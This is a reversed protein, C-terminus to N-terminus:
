PHSYWNRNEDARGGGNIAGSLEAASRVDANLDDVLNIDADITLIGSLINLEADGILNNFTLDVGGNIGYNGGVNLTSSALPSM